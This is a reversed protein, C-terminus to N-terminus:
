RFSDKVRIEYGFGYQYAGLGRQGGKWNGRKYRVLNGKSMDEYAWQVESVGLLDKLDRKAWWDLGFSGLRAGWIFWSVPNSLSSWDLLAMPIQMLGSVQNVQHIFAQDKAYDDLEWLALQVGFREGPQIRVMKLRVTDLEIRQGEAVKGLYVLHVDVPFVQEGVIRVISVQVLLEDRLTLNEQLDQATINKLKVQAEKAVPLVQAVVPQHVSVQVVPKACSVVLALFSILVIGRM